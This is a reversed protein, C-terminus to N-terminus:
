MNEIATEGKLSQEILKKNKMGASTVSYNRGKKKGRGWGVMWRGTQQLKGMNVTSLFNVINIVMARSDM